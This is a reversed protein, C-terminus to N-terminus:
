FGRIAFVTRKHPLFKTIAFLRLKHCKILNLRSLDKSKGFCTNQYLYLFFFKNQSFLGLPLLLLGFIDFGIYSLNTMFKCEKAERQFHQQM